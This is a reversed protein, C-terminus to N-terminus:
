GEKRARRRRASEALQHEALSARPGLLDSRGAWGLALARLWSAVPMDGAADRLAAEQEPTLRLRAKESKGAM